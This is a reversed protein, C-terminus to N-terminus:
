KTKEELLKNIKVIESQYVTQPIVKVFEALEDSKGVDSILLEFAHRCTACVLLLHRDGYGDFFVDFQQGKCLSCSLPLALRDEPSPKECCPITETQPFEWKSKVV